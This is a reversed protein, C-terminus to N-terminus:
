LWLAFRASRPAGEHILTVLPLRGPVDNTTAFNRLGKMASVGKHSQAVFAAFGAAPRRKHSLAV